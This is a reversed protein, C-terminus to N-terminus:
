TGVQVLVYVKSAKTLAEGAVTVPLKQAFERGAKVRFSEFQLRGKELGKSREDELLLVISIEVRRDTLNNGVLEVECRVQKDAEMPELAVLVLSDLRVGQVDAKLEITRGVAFDFENQFPNESPAYAADQGAAALTLFMFAITGAVQRM